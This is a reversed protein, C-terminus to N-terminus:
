LTFYSSIDWNISHPVWFYFFEIGLGISLGLSTCFEIGISIGPVKTDRNRVSESLIASGQVTRSTSEPSLPERHYHFIQCHNDYRLIIGLEEQICQLLWQDSILVWIQTLRSNKNQLKRAGGPNKEQVVLCYCYCYCVHLDKSLSSSFHNEVRVLM